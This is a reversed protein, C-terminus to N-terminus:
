RPAADLFTFEYAMEMSEGPKLERTQTYLELNVQRFQPHWWLKPYKMDAPTYTLCIGAKEQANFFAFAGGKAGVM